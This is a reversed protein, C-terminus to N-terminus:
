ASNRITLRYLTSLGYRLSSRISGRDLKYMKEYSHTHPTGHTISFDHFDNILLVQFNNSLSTAGFIIFYLIFCHCDKISHRSEGRREHLDHRPRPLLDPHHLGRHHPHSEM